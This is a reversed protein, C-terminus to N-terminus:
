KPIKALVWRVINKADWPDHVEIFVWRGFGGYNNIAPVWLTKATEVKAAKEKKDEGTVEIILNLLGDPGHGDDIRAIFDPYFNKEEGNFTYPIIFGVNHNKVYSHVEEMDELTQAM